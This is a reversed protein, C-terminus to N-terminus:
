RSLMLVTADAQKGAKKFKKKRKEKKGHSTAPINSMQLVWPKEKLLFKLLLLEFLLARIVKNAPQPRSCCCFVQLIQTKEHEKLM